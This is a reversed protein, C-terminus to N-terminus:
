GNTRIEAGCVVCWSVCAHCVVVSPVVLLPHTLFTGLSSAPSPLLPSLYSSYRFDIMTKVQVFERLYILSKAVDVHDV